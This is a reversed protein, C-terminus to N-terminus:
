VHQREGLKGERRNVVCTKSAQRLCLLPNLQAGPNMLLAHVKKQSRKGTFEKRYVPIQLSVSAMLKM